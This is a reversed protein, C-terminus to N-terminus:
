PVVAVAGSSARRAAAVDHGAARAVAYLYRSRIRDKAARVAAKREPWPRDQVGLPWAAADTSAVKLLLLELVWLEAPTSGQRVAAPVSFAEALAERGCVVRLTDPGTPATRGVLRAQAAEHSLAHLLRFRAYQQLRAALAAASPYRREPHRLHDLLADDAAESVLHPDVRPFRRALWGEVSGLLATDAGMVQVEQEV